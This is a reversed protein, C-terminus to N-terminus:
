IDTVDTDWGRPSCMLIRTSGPLMYIWVLNTEPQLSVTTGEPYVRMVGTNLPGVGYLPTDKPLTVYIDHGTMTHHEPPTPTENPFQKELKALARANHWWAINAPPTSSGRTEAFLVLDLACRKFFGMGDTAETFRGAFSQASLVISLAFLSLIPRM